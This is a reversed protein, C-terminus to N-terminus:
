AATGGRAIEELNKRRLTYVDMATQLQALFDSDRVARTLVDLEELNAPRPHGVALQYQRGTERSTRPEITVATIFRGFPLPFIASAAHAPGLEAWAPTGALRLTDAAKRVAGAKTGGFYSVAPVLRRDLHVITLALFEESLGSHRGPDTFEVREIRYQDDRASWFQRFRALHLKLPEAQEFQGEPMGVFPTGEQIKPLLQRLSDWTASKSSAFGVYPATSDTRVVPEECPRALERLLDHQAVPAGLGAENPEAVKPVVPESNLPEDDPMLTKM